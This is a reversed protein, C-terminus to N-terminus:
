DIQTVTISFEFSEWAEHGTPAAIVGGAIQGLVTDAKDNTGAGADDFDWNWTLEYTGNITSFASSEVDYEGSLTGTLYTQIEDLGVDQCGAVAVGDKELTWVVPYYPAAPDYTDTTNATTYDLYSGAPLTVRTFDGLTVAVQVDVEPAGAITFAVAEGTTGPAIVNDTTSSLVSITDNGAYQTNFISSIAEVVVGFKAVRATDSGTAETVYKAFTGSIVSSTLLVMILLVSAARMMVNKKM